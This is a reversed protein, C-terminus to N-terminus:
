PNELLVESFFTSTSSAAIGFHTEYYTAHRGRWDRGLTMGVSLVDDVLSCGPRFNYM